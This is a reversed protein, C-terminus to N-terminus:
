PKELHVKTMELYVNQLHHVGIRFNFHRRDERYWMEIDSFNNNEVVIRFPGKIYKVSNGDEQKEFGLKRLQDDDLLVPQIKDLSYWFEQVGNDILAQKEERSINVVIGERVVGEEEVKVVDGAKLEGLKLM